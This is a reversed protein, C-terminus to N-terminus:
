AVVSVVVFAAAVVFAVVVVVAAVVMAVAVAIAFVVASAVVVNASCLCFLLLWMVSVLPCSVLLSVFVCVSLLVLAYM